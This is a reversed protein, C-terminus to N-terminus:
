ETEPVAIADKELSAIVKEEEATLVIANNKQWFKGNYKSPKDYLYKKKYVEKKDYSLDDKEFDTVILDSRSETIEQHKKTWVKYRAYRNNYSLVYNNNVMKYVARFKIDLPSSHLGFLSIVKPYQKHSEAFHMDVDYILKTEPDYVFSGEYLSKEVEKKPEIIIVYLEKGDKNKRSKLTFEYNDFDKKNIVQKELFQFTYSTLIGRQVNLTAGIEDEEETPLSLSFSRNQKVILDSKTKKTGGGVHYDLVGDSFKKYKEDLKIFERYYTHLVIPKNFRAKSAAIIDLLIQQLPVKTVMVEELVEESQELLITQTEATFDSVPVTVLKYGLCSIIIAGSKPATLQFIGEENSITGMGTNQIGISGAIIPEKTASDKLLGRINVTQSILFNSLLLFCLAYVNKM